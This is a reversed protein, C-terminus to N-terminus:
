HYTVQGQEGMAWTLQLAFRLPLPGVMKAYSM